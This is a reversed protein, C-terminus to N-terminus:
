ISLKAYNDVLMGHYQKDHFGETLSIEAGNCM